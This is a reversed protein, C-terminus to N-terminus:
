RAFPVPPLSVAGSPCRFAAARIEDTIEAPPHGDRLIMMGDSEDQDFVDPASIVCQGAGVCLDRDIILSM